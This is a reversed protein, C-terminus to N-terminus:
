IYLSNGGSPSQVKGSREAIRTIVQGSSSPNDRM